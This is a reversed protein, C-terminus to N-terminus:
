HHAPLSDSCIIWSFGPYIVPLYLVGLEIGNGFDDTWYATSAFSNTGDISV